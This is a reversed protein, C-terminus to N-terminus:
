RPHRGRRGVYLEHFHHVVCVPIDGEAHYHDSDSTLDLGPLIRLICNAAQGLIFYITEINPSTCVRVVVDFDPSTQSSRM